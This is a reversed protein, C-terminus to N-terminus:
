RRSQSRRRRAPKLTGGAPVGDPDEGGSGRRKRRRHQWALPLTMLQESVPRGFFVGLSAGAAIALAIAVATGLTAGGKAPDSVASASGVLQLLGLYLTLGPVFPIGVANVVGFVPIQWLRRVVITVLLAAVMPGAFNATM